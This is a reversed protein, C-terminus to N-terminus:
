ENIKGIYLFKDEEVKDYKGSLIGEVDNLVDNIDVYEGKIGTYQESVNM